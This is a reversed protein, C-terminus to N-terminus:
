TDALFDAIAGLAQPAVLTLAHGAGAVRVLQATPIRQAARTAHAFPVTRDATGHVILTCATWTEGHWRARWNRATVRVSSRGSGARSADSPRARGAAPPGSSRARRAASRPKALWLWKLWRNPWESPAMGVSTRLFSVARADRAIWRQPWTKVL